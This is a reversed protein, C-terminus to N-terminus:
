QVLLLITLQFISLAGEYLLKPSFVTWVFLHFRLSTVILSFILTILMRSCIFGYMHTKGKSELNQRHIDLLLALIPGSFTACSLLFGVAFMNYNPLGVYGSALDIRSLNNGNGEQFYWTMGIWYHALNKYFPHLEVLHPRILSYQLLHMWTLILNHPRKLLSTLVIWITVLSSSRERSSIAIFIVSIYTVFAEAIGTSQPYYFLFSGLAARYALTACLGVCTAIVQLLSLKLNSYIWCFIGTAGIVSSITLYTRNAATNLWENVDPENIWKDGTQNWCRSIRVLGMFGILSLVSERRRTSGYMLLLALTNIFYYYTQHEEEVFSSAGLSFAHLLSGSLLFIEAVSGLKKLRFETRNFLLHCNTVFLILILLSLGLSYVVPVHGNLCIGSENDIMLCTLVHCITFFVGTVIVFSYVFRTPQWNVLRQCEIASILLLQFSLVIGLIMSYLDFQALNEVSSNSMEEAAKLFLDMIENENKTANNTLWDQYLKVARQYVPNETNREFQLYINRANAYAAYLKQTHEFNGLAGPLISGLNNSPIPVGMLVAMTPALDIQLHNSFDSKLDPKCGEMMFTLPIEVEAKSSGGHSGSDSMGHDGCVIIATNKEIFQQHIKKIVDDMERLKEPVLLSRPGSVHGIHDLGLYHLIMVSWDTQNLEFNLHRTVNNDVEKFDNVFFSTTGESRVFKKPFLKLWTDDGYFVIKHGHTALQDLINDENIQPSGLNFIVDAFGPVNGTVLAKIRPLTVTPTHARALYTCALGKDHLDSLFPMFQINDGLIFDARLADIVILVLKSLKPTYLHKPNLSLGNLEQPLSSDWNSSSKTRSNYPLFGTLFIFIASFHCFVIYFIHWDKRLKM